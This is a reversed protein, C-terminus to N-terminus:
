YPLSEKEFDTKEVCMRDMNRRNDLNSERQKCLCSVPGEARQERPPAEGITSPRL